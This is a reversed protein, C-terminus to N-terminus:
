NRFSVQSARDPFHPLFGVSFANRKSKPTLGAGESNTEGLHELEHTQQNWNVQRLKACLNSLAEQSSKQEERWAVLLNCAAEEVRRSKIHAANVKRLSLGLVRVGLKKLDTM